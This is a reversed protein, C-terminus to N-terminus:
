VVHAWTKRRIAALAAGHTVGYERALRSTPEGQSARTRIARVDDETLRSWSADEGRPDRGKAIKDSVNDAHAGLSLHSPTQCPPNDCSHMVVADDPIPHGLHQELGFRHAFVTKQEAFTGIQFRGYGAGDVAATWVRCGNVDPPAIKALYREVPDRRQRPAPPDTTGTRKMRGYHTGCLGQMKGVHGQAACGAVACINVCM